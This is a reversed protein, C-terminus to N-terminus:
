WPMEYYQVVALGSALAQPMNANPGAVESVHPAPNSFSPALGFYVRGASPSVAITTESFSANGGTGSVLTSVGPNGTTFDIAYLERPGSNPAETLVVLRNAEKAWRLVRTNAGAQHQGAIVPSLPTASTVYPEYRFRVNFDALFAIRWDDHAFAYSGATTRVGGGSPSGQDVRLPTTSVSPTSVYLRAPASTPSQVTFLVRDAGNSWVPANVRQSTSASPPSIRVASFAAATMDVYFLESVNDTMLDSVFVFASGDPSSTLSGVFSTFAPAAAVLPQRTPPTVRVDAHFLERRADRIIGAFFVHNSDPSWIPELGLVDQSTNLTGSAARTAVSSTFVDSVWLETTGAVNHDGTFALRQGNPSWAMTNNPGAAPDSPPDVRLPASLGTAGVHVAHISFGNGVTGARAFFVFKSGDPAWRVRVASANQIPAVLQATPSMATLDVAYVGYQTNRQEVYVFWAGDPSLGFSGATRLAGIDTSSGNTLTPRPTPSGACLDIPVVIGRGSSSGVMVGFRPGATTSITIALTRIVTDGVADTLQVTFTYGGPTTPVGSISGQAGNSSLSLGPPLSGQTLAWSYGTRAGGRGRLTAFYHKCPDGGDLTATLIQLPVSSPLVDITYTRTARRANRDIALVDFTYSGLATPTGSITTSPTGISEIVLGPPLQGMVAWTYPEAGNAATIEVEYALGIESVPLAPPAIIRLVPDESVEIQYSRRAVRGSGDEVQLTFSFIGAVSPRGWFRVTSRNDIEMTLGPPLSGASISWRYPDFGPTCTATANYPDNISGDSFSETYIELPEADVVSMTFEDSTSNGVDDFLEIVFTYDGVRTPRGHLLTAAATFSTELTLGPPLSGSSVTWAYPPVGGSGVIQLEYAEGVQAPPLMRPSLIGLPAEQGRVRLGFAKEVRTGEADEVAVWFVVNQPIWAMGTLRAQDGDQVLELGEPPAAMTVSWVYPTRGGIAEIPEDYRAGSFADPLATTMIALPRVPATVTITYDARATEGAFGTLVVTFAYAGEALPVGDITATAEGRVLALGPPLGGEVSWSWPGPGHARVVATYPEQIVAEPLSSPTIWLTTRPEAPDLSYSRGCSVLGLGLLLLTRRVTGM